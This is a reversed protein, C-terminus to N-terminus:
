MDYIYYLMVHCSMVSCIMIDFLVVCCLMVDHLTASLGNNQHRTSTYTASCTDNFSNYRIDIRAAVTM